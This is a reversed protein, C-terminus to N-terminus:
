WEGIVFAVQRQRADVVAVGVPVSEVHAIVHSM